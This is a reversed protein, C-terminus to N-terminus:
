ILCWNNHILFVALSYLLINEHYDRTTRRTPLVCYETCISLKGSNSFMSGAFCILIPCGVIGGYYVIGVRKKSACPYALIVLLETSVQDLFCCTPEVEEM